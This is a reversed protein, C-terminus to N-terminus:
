EPFENNEKKRREERLKKVAEIFAQRRGEKNEQRYTAEKLWNSRARTAIKKIKEVAKTM